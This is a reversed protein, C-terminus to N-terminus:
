RHAAVAGRPPSSGERLFFYLPYSGQVPMAMPAYLAFDPHSLIDAEWRFLLLTQTGDIVRGAGILLVDPQQALVWGADHRHHGKLEVELDPPANAIAENTMGLVDVLPLGSYYGIAGVASVAVRTGPEARAGLARGVAEWRQENAAHLEFV